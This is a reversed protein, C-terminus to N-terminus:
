FAWSGSRMVSEEGGGATVGDIDLQESGVMFDVHTLSRNIGAAALADDNM